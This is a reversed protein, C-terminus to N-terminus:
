SIAEHEQGFEKDDRHLIGPQKSRRLRNMRLNEGTEPSLHAHFQKDALQLCSPHWSFSRQMKEPMNLSIEGRSNSALPYYASPMRTTYARYTHM